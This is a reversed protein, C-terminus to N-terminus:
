LLIKFRIQPFLCHLPLIQQCLTLHKNQNFGTCVLSMEGAVSSPASTLLEGDSSIVVVLNSRQSNCKHRAFPMEPEYTARTVPLAALNWMFESKIM